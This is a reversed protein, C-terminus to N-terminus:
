QVAAPTIHPVLQGKFVLEHKKLTPRIPQLACTSLDQMLAFGEDWSVINDQTPLYSETWIGASLVLEHGGLWIHYYTFPGDMGDLEGILHAPVLGEKLGTALDLEPGELLVRHAPSVRLRDAVGFRSVDLKIPTTADSSQVQKRGIWSIPVYGNDKTLVRDGATLTEIPKYGQETYIPTGVLFCVVMLSVNDMIASVSDDDSVETFTITYDGAEPFDIFYSQQDLSGVTTGIITDTFIVTGEDDTITVQVGDVNVDGTGSSNRIGFDFTLAANSLEDSAITFTQSYSTTQGSNGDIEVITNTPDGGSVLVNEQQTEPDVSTWGTPGTGVGTSGPAATGDGNDAGTNLEGNFIVERVPM